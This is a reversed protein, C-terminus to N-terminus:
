IVGNSQPKKPGGSTQHSFNMRSSQEENAAGGGYLLDLIFANRQPTALLPSDQPRLHTDM